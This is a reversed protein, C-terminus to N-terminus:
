KKVYILIIDCGSDEEGSSKIVLENNSVKFSMSKCQVAESYLPCHKIVDGIIEYTGKDEKKVKGHELTKYAFSGDEKFVAEYCSNHNCPLDVTGVFTTDTCNNREISKLKWSGVVEGKLQSYCYHFNVTLAVVFIISKIYRM